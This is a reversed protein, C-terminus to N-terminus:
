NSGSRSELRRRVCRPLTLQTDTQLLARSRSRSSMVAACSALKSDIALNFMALERIRSKVQLKTGTAWVHKPRFPPKAGILKGRNWALRRAPAASLEEPNQM